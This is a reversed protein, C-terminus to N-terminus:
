KKNEDMFHGISKAAWGAVAVGIGIPALFAASAGVAPILTAAALLGGGVAALSGGLRIQNDLVRGGAERKLGKFESVASIAGGVLNGAGLAGGNLGTAAGRLLDWGSWAMASLSTYIGFNAGKTGGDKEIIKDEVSGWGYGIAAAVGGVLLAGGAAVALITGTGLAAGAASIMGATVGAGLGGIVAGGIGSWLANGRAQAGQAKAEIALKPARPAAPQTNRTPAAPASNAAPAVTARPMVMPRNNVQMSM